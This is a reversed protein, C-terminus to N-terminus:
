AALPLAPYDRGLQFILAPGDPDILVRGGSALFTSMQTQGGLFGVIFTPDLLFGHPDDDSRQTRDNRYLTTRPLLDGARILTASTPNPVTADGRAVQVLAREDPVLPAFTEPSGSRNLWTQEALFQQIPLAGPAPDLVPPEGALPLSETFGFFGGNLLPPQAGALAETVLPRFSPSLRAIESIPGGPVNLGIAQLLPDTGGLMTGYIGGFSQGYYDTGIPQLDPVGDSNLDVGLAVARVLTMIDAATQRLGDRSGVQAFPAPQPLASVGETDTIIGDGNLDIGRGYAPLTGIVGNRIIRWTSDPGYGHGVVDTAITAFGRSANQSAALFLDADSRTFGHGFVAVPWGGAPPAGAPLILVFPLRQAGQVVPGDDATPTQPIVRDATLWSPALYSGFVYAGADRGSLNVVPIPLRSSGLDADYIFSTGAAPVAADVRLERDSIGAAAFAAGSDLQRRLDLLGDTASMTTFTTQAPEAGATRLRFTTGPALQDVPHAYVTYTAADYVIRDLGTTWGGGVARITTRAAVEVADVPADFRLALRPDLDFGDLQNLLAVTNCDTPHTTCDPEPLAVRRGTLQAADAVTLSDSPFLSVVAATGAPAATAPGAPALALVAALVTTPVARNSRM